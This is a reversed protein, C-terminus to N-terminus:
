NYKLYSLPNLRSYVRKTIIVANHKIILTNTIYIMVFILVKSLEASLENRNLVNSIIEIVGFSIFSNLLHFLFDKIFLSQNEIKLKKNLLVYSVVFFFIFSISTSLALGEQQFGVFLFNLVFKLIVGSVTILLLLKAQNISYFIKNFVADPCGDGDQHGDADERALPCLDADGAVGDGDDDTMAALLQDPPSQTWAPACGLLLALPLLRACAPM